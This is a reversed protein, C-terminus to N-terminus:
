LEDDNLSDPQVERVYRGKDDYRYVRNTRNIVDYDGTEKLVGNDHYDNVQIRVIRKGDDSYTEKKIIREDLYYDATKKKHNKMEVTVTIMGDRGCIVEFYRNRSKIDEATLEGVFRIKKEKKLYTADFTEFYKMSMKEDSVFRYVASGTKLVSFKGASSKDLVCKALTMMPFKVRLIIREGGEDVYVRDDCKFQEAAHPSSIIIEKSITNIKAIKGLSAEKQAPVPIILLLVTSVCLMWKM